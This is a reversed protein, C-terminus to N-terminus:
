TNYKVDLTLPLSTEIINFPSNNNPYSQLDKQLDLSLKICMDTWEHTVLPKLSLEFSTLGIPIM